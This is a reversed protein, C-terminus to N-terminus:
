MHLKLHAILEKVGEYDVLLKLFIEFEAPPIDKCDFYKETLEGKKILNCTREKKKRKKDRALIQQEQAKIQAMKARVKELQQIEKDTM